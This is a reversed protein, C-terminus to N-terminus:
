GRGKQSNQADILQRYRSQNKDAMPGKWYESGKNAMM